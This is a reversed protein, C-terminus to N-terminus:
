YLHLPKACIWEKDRAVLVKICWSWGFESLMGVEDENNTVANIPLTELKIRAPRNYQQKGGSYIDISFFLFNLMVLDLIKKSQLTQLRFSTRHYSILPWQCIYRSIGGDRICFCGTLVVEFLMESVNFEGMPLHWIHNRRFLLHLSSDFHRSWSYIQWYRSRHWVCPKSISSSASPVLFM